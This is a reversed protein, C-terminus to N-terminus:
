IIGIKNAVDLADYDASLRVFAKKQGDPRILTNVKSAHIQYMKKVAGAIQKKDAQRNVIFVLTNNDEIKKMASETTLPFKMIKFRDLSKRKTVSRRIYKPDKRITKTKPRIFQRRKYVKLKKKQPAGLKAAAKAKSAKAITAPDMMKVVGKVTGRKGAPVAGSKKPVGGAKVKLAAASKAAVPGSSGGKGKGGAPAVGKKAPPAGSSGGKKPPPAGSSGGKKAPAAGSTGGKKAGGSSSGTATPPKSGTPKSSAKPAM